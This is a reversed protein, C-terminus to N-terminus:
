YSYNNKLIKGEESNSQLAFDLGTQGRRARKLYSVNLEYCMQWPSISRKKGGEIYSTYLKAAGTM